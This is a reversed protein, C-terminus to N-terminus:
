LIASHRLTDRKRFLENSNKLEKIKYTMDLIFSMHEFILKLCTVKQRHNLPCWPDTVTWYVAALDM